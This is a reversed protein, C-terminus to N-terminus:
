GVHKSPDRDPARRSAATSQPRPCADSLPLVVASDIIALANAVAPCSKDSQAKVVTYLKGNVRTLEAERQADTKSALLPANLDPRLALLRTRETNLADCNLDPYQEPPVGLAPIKFAIM